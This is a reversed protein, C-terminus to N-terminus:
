RLLAALACDPTHGITGAPFMARHADTPEFGFCCPCRDGANWEIRQLVARAREVEALLASVDAVVRRAVDPDEIMGHGPELWKLRERIAKLEEATM